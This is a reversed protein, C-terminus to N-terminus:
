LSPVWAFFEPQPVFAYNVGKMRFCIGTRGLSLCQPAPKDWHGSYDAKGPTLTVVHGHEQALQKSDLGAIILTGENTLAQCDAIPKVLFDKSTRLFAMIHDADDTDMASYGFADFVAEVALNCRTEEKGNVVRPMFLGSDWVKNQVSILKDANKMESYGSGLDIGVGIGFRQLAGKLANLFWM